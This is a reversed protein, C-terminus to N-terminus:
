GSRTRGYAPPSSGARFVGPPFHLDTHPLRMSRMTVYVFRLPNGQYIERLPAILDDALLGRAASAGADIHWNVASDPSARALRVPAHMRPHQLLATLVDSSTGGSLLGGLDVRLLGAQPARWLRMLHDIMVVNDRRERHAHVAAIVTVGATL